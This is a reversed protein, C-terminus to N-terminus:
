YFHSDRHSDFETDEFGFVLCRKAVSGETEEQQFPGGGLFVEKDEGEHPVEEKGTKEGEGDVEM